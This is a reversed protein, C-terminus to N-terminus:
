GKNISKCRVAPIFKETSKKHPRAVGWALQLLTRSNVALGKRDCPLKGNSDTVCFKM